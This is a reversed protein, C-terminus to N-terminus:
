PEQTTESKGEEDEYTSESALIADGIIIMLWAPVRKAVSFKDADSFHRDGNEDRLHEVVLRLYAESNDVGILHQVKKRMGLSYPKFWVSRPFGFEKASEPLEFELLMGDTAAKINALLESM